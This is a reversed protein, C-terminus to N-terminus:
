RLKVYHQGHDLEFRHITDDEPHMTRVGNFWDDLAPDRCAHLITHDIDVVLALKKANLLTERVHMTLSQHAQSRDAGVTILSAICRMMFRLFLRGVQQSQQLKRAGAGIM